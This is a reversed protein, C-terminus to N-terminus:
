YIFPILRKTKAKYEEFEGKYKKNLYADLMPINYFAFFCFLFLPIAVAYNNRTIIAYGCIWLLDGFYNIHMSYKFLGQTYLRGKNEPHKKWFHRQLESVTNLFSGAVFVAVGVFDFWDLPLSTDYVLLSFGIYYLAFAVPVSFVEEWPMKRKLLFVMMFSMRLFVIINFLYIIIRRLENGTPQFSLGLWGLVSSGGDEFLIWWSVWLIIFELIIVTTKQPISKSKTGYLDM